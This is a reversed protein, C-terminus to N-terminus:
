EVCKWCELCSKGLGGVKGRWSWQCDKSFADRVQIQQMLVGIVSVDMEM